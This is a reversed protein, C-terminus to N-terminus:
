IHILSLSDPVQMNGNRYSRCDLIKLGDPLAPLSTTKLNGSFYFEQLGAPLATTTTLETNFSCDLVKLGSNLVPMTVFSNDGCWLKELNEPLTPLTTLKNEVCWLFELSNPLEPLTSLENNYCYLENLGTTLTPLTTLKNYGCRLTEIGSPLAPLTTLENNSCDLWILTSPLTPLSTLKCSACHLYEIGTGEFHQLGALSHIDLLDGTFWIGYRFSLVNGQAPMRNILDQKTFSGPTSGEANGLWEWVKQKFVPDTFDSSIDVGTDAYVVSAGFMMNAQLILLLTLICVLRKSGAWKRM